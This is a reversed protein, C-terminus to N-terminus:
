IINFNDSLFGCSNSAEGFLVPSSLLILFSWIRKIRLWWLWPIFDKSRIANPGQRSAMVPIPGTFKRDLAQGLCVRLSLAGACSSMSFLKYVRAPQSKEWTVSFCDVFM